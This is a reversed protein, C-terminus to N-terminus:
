REWPDDIAPDYGDGFLSEDREPHEAARITEIVQMIARQGRASLKGARRAIRYEPTQQFQHYERVQQQLQENQRLQELRRQDEPNDSFYLISVDLVQALYQVLFHAPNGSRGKRINAIQGGTIRYGFRAEIQKAVSNNSRGSEEMLVNLKEAIFLARRQEAAADLPADVGQPSPTADPTTM